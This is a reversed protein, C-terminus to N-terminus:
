SLDQSVYAKWEKNFSTFHMGHRIADKIHRSLLLGNIYSRNGQQHIVRKYVLINDAWRQKVAAAAQYALPIHHVWAHHELVGILRPTELESYSQQTAKNAYLTYNELVLWDPKCRDMLELHAHYYEPRSSYDKAMINGFQIVEQKDNMLVWGTTGNGERYSGSPDMVLVTKM